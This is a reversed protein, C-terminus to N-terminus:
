PLAGYYAAVTAAIVSGVTAVVVGWFRWRAVTIASDETVEPLGLDEDEEDMAVILAFATGVPLGASLASRTTTACLMARSTAAVGRRGPV